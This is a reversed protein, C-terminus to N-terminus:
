FAYEPHLPRRYLFPVKNKIWVKLQSWHEKRKNIIYHDISHKCESVGEKAGDDGYFGWVAYDVEDCTVGYIDGSLYMNWEEVIARAVKRAKDRTWTWGKQRKVLVYGTTSVDWRRDPFNTENALSLAVGSHIYADVGFFWYGDYLNSKKNEQSFEFIDRPEFGKRDVSFQRHDYVLFADDNGWEDPSDAYEDHKVEIDFGRYKITNESM